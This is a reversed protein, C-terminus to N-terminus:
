RPNQCAGDCRLVRQASKLFQEDGNSVAVAILSKAIQWHSLLKSNGNRMNEKFLRTSGSTDLRGEIMLRGLLLHAGRLAAWNERSRGETDWSLISVSVLCDVAICQYLADFGDLEPFAGDNRQAAIGRSTFDDGLTEWASDGELIAATRFVIAWLFARHTYRWAMARGENLRPQAAIYRAAMLFRQIREPRRADLDMLLAQGAASLFFATSHTVDELEGEMRGSDAHVRQLGADLIKWGLELWDQRQMLLGRQVFDSGAAQLEPFRMTSQNLGILGSSAVTVSPVSRALLKWRSDLIYKRYSEDRTAFLGQSRATTAPQLCLAILSAGTSLINRRRTLLSSTSQCNGAAKSHQGLRSSQPSRFYGLVHM